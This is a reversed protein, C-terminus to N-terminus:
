TQACHALSESILALLEEGGGHGAKGMVHHKSTEWRGALRWATELPSSVDYRGHILSGPIGNLIAADRILQDDELFATHRWYHTVLRAFRLRFGAD